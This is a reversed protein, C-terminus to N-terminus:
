ANVADAVEPYPRTFVLYSSWNHDNIATEYRWGAALLANMEEQIEAISESIARYNTHLRILKVERAPPAALFRTKWAEVMELSVDPREWREATIYKAWHEPERSLERLRDALRSNEQNVKTLAADIARVELRQKLIEELLEKITNRWVDPAAPDTFFHTRVRFLTENWHPAATYDANNVLSCLYDYAVGEMFKAHVDKRELYAEGEEKTLAAVGEETLVEFDIFERKLWESLDINLGKETFKVTMTNTNDTM